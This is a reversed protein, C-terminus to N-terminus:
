IRMRYWIYVDLGGVDLGVGKLRIWETSTSSKYMISSWSVDIVKGLM